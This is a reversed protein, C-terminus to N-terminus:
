AMTLVSSRTVGDSGRYKVTISTDSTAEFTLQGNSSLSASALPSIKLSGFVLDAGATAANNFITLSSGSARIASCQLFNGGTIQLSGPMSLNGATSFSLWSAFTGAANKGGIRIGRATGGASGISAAIDFNSADGTADIQLAEYSTASTNVKYFLANTLALDGVANVGLILDGTSNLSLINGGAASYAEGQRVYFGMNTDIVATEATGGNQLFGYRVSRSAKFRASDYYGAAGWNRNAGYTIVEYPDNNTSVQFYKTGGAWAELAPQGIASNNLRLAALSYNLPLGLVANGATIPADATNAFNRSRFGGEACADLTPGTAGRVFKSDITSGASTAGTFAFSGASRVSIYNQGIAAQEQGGTQIILRNSNAYLYASTGISISPSFYDGGKFTALGATDFSLWPAFTGAADKGGIRIGRATGGASGITSAIDFNSADGAADLELWEGSTASTYTKYIRSKQGNGGNRQALTNAADRHLQLDSAGGVAFNSNFGLHYNGGIQAHTATVAFPVAGGCAISIVNGAPLYLGTNATWGIDINSSSGGSKAIVRGTFTAGAFTPSDTTALGLTERTTAPFAVSSMKGAADVALALVGASPLTDPAELLIGGAGARIPAYTQPM